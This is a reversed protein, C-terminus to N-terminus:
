ARVIGVLVGIIAAVCVWGVAFGFMAQLSPRPIELGWASGLLRRPPVKVGHPLTCPAPIVEGSRVPTCLLAHYRRLKIPDVPKTILSFIVGLALGVFLYSIMQWPLYVSVDRCRTIDHIFTEELLAANANFLAEGTNDQEVLKVTGHMTIVEAFRDKTYISPGSAIRNLEATLAWRREDESSASSAILNRTEDSLQDRVYKQAANVPNDLQSILRNPRDIDGTHFQWYPRIVRTFADDLLRRKRKALSDGELRRLEEEGTKANTRYLLERTGESPVVGVFREEDWLFTDSKHVADGDDSEHTGPSSSKRAKENEGTILANLDKVIAGVLM